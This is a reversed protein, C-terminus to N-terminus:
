GAPVEDPRAMPLAPEATGGRSAPAAPVWPRDGRDERDSLIRAGRPDLWIAVAGQAWVTFRDVVPAADGCRGRAPEASIVVIAAACDAPKVAGRLLLARPGGPRAQLTCFTATCRAAGGAAEGEAGGKPLALVTEAAWYQQWADRTFGGNGSLSQVLMASGTRLGILRADASVLLDPPATLLPSLLGAALLALGALRLRSRWLGAWALGLAVLALGWAPIHPVPLTAAPLASTSRAVWLIAQVGWGMPVLALREIGFPMLGLAILGAPMVWFATLPVAIMNSLVFYLQVHGFHYAAFPASATGALASTLALGVVHLSVRRQWQGEGHLLRLRARLLDYGVILALVASFSMQFSVGAVQDPAILILVAAALALGRLSAPRRGALLALTFLCAMAFSRQIPVHAVTLLLYGFGALLAALAAIQKAPWHLSAYESCALLQRTTVLALGMVIGVHLGAVALLHALGSDRFAARDALPIASTIGTLLTTAIAGDPGPLVATIRQAIVGRLWQVVQWLSAGLPRWIRHWLTGARGPPADPAADDLLEARGLAHGYGGLGSFFADRQLDWGGPYAPPAPPRVLARLRLQEGVEAALPDDPRLRVRLQRALVSGAEGLRIDRLTVRSGEPLLEVQAVTGSLTVGNRPLPEVPPARLTAVQGATFGLSLCFAAALVAQALARLLAATASHAAARGSQRALWLLLALCPLAAAAGAWPPPESRLAFYWLAGAGMFVPLWLAFRGTEAAHWRLLTASLWAGIATASPLAPRRLTAQSLVPVLLTAVFAWM